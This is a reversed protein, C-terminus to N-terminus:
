SPHTADLDGRALEGPPNVTGEGKSVYRRLKGASNKKGRANLRMQDFNLDRIGAQAGQRTKCGSASMSTSGCCRVAYMEEGIDM